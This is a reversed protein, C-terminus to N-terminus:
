ISLNNDDAEEDYEGLTLTKNEDKVSDKKIFKGLSESCDWDGHNGYNFGMYKRLDQSAVTRADFMNFAITHNCNVLFVDREKTYTIFVRPKFSFDEPSIGENLEVDSTIVLGVGKYNQMFPVRLVQSKDDEQMILIEEEKYGLSMLGKKAFGLNGNKVPIIYAKYMEVLEMYKKLTM